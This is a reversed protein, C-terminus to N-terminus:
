IGKEYAAMIARFQWKITRGEKDAAAKLLKYSVRDVRLNVDPTKM